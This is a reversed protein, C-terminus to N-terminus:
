SSSSSDSNEEDTTTTATAKEKGKLTHLIYNVVAFAHSAEELTYIGASQGLEIGQSVVDLASIPNLEPNKNTAPDTYEPVKLLYMMGRHILSADSLKKIAGGKQAQDLLKQLLHISNEENLHIEKLGAM